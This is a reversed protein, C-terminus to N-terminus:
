NPKGYKERWLIAVSTCIRKGQEYLTIVSAGLLLGMYGGFDAVFNSIDYFWQETIIQFLYSNYWKKFNGPRGVLCSLVYVPHGVQFTDTIFMFLM